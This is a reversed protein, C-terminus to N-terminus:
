ATLGSCLFAELLLLWNAVRETGDIQFSQLALSVQNERSAMAILSEEYLSYSALQREHAISSVFSSGNRNSHADITTM